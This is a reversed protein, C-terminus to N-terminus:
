LGPTGCPLTACESKKKKDKDKSKDKSSKGSAISGGGM